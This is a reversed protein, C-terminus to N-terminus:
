NRNWFIIFVSYGYCKKHPSVYRVVCNLSFTQLLYGVPQQQFHHEPSHSYSLGQSVEPVQFNSLINASNLRFKSLVLTTSKFNLELKIKTRTKLPSRM